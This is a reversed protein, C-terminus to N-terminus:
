RDRVFIETVSVPRGAETTLEVTIPYCAVAPFPSWYRDLEAGCDLGLDRPAGDVSFRWVGGGPPRLEVRRPGLKTVRLGPDRVFPEVIRVRRPGPSSLAYQKSWRDAYFRHTITYEVDSAAGGASRLRGRTAVTVHDSEETVSLSGTSEFLNSFIEGDITCEVRPTLPRLPGEDPLHLPEERKYVTVSSTQTFGNRGFGEMWLNTVSGGRAVQGLGYRSVAGYASVTAMISRTRVVAVNVTKFWRFWGTAAAPVRDAGPVVLTPAPGDAAPRGAKPAFALAMALSQARAFTSYLCPPNVDARDADGPGATVFGGRTAHTSLYELCTLGAPGFRPDQDALLAFSFYVGPATKTGSEYTWKFSRTGWSNDISGNPYVFPLHARLVDAARRRLGENGTLRGYLALFGVSQAMNYGPDVGGGEGSLLNEANIGAVTTAILEDAKRRWAEPAPEALAEAAMVLAVAGTPQYNVNDRPFTNAVFEAASRISREWRPRDAPSIEGRLITYAGALSVLQDATTGTWGKARNTEEVWSGDAHQLGFLWRALSLAADRYRADGSRQFLVAFPYVAEAARSHLPHREPNVSPCVLAGHDPDAPNAIQTSLLADCLGRLTAEYRAEWGTVAATPAGGASTLLLSALLLAAM